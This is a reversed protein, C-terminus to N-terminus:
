TASGVAMANQIVVTQDEPVLEVPDGVNVFSESENLPEWPAENTKFTEIRDEYKPPMLIRSLGTVDMPFTGGVNTRTRRFTSAVSIKDQVSTVRVWAKPRYVSGLLEGTDPDKVDRAGPDLIAFVMGEAVGDVDGRNIIVERSSIIKAVKGAIAVESTAGM